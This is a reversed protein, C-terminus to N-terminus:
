PADAIREGTLRRSRDPAEIGDDHAVRFEAAIATATEFPAAQSDGKLM